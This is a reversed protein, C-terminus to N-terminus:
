TCVKREHRQGRVPWQTGGVAAVRLRRRFRHWLRTDLSRRFIGGSLQRAIADEVDFDAQRERHCAIAEVVRDWDRSRRLHNLFLAEENRAADTNAGYLLVSEWLASLVTQVLHQQTPRARSRIAELTHSLICRM